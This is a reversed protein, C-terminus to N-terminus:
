SNKKSIGDSKEEKLEGKIYLSQKYRRHERMITAWEKNSPRYDSWHKKIRQRVREAREPNVIIQITARSVGFQKALPRMGCVWSEYIRRIEVKQEETLKRRRDQHPQLLIRESKYPM